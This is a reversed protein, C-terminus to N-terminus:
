RPSLVALTPGAGQVESYLHQGVKAMYDASPAHPPFLPSFETIGTYISSRRNPYQSVRCSHSHTNHLNSIWNSIAASGSFEFTDHGGSTTAAFIFSQTDQTVCLGTHTYASEEEKHKAVYKYIKGENKDM